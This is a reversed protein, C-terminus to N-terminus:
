CPRVSTTWSPYRTAKPKPTTSSTLSGCVWSSVPAPDAGRSRGSVGRAGTGAEPLAPDPQNGEADRENKRRTVPALIQIGHEGKRVQRGLSQWTRYGAVQTADPRQMWIAVTNRFSYHHFRAATRLWDTWASSSTLTLVQDSLTAHFAELRDRRETDSVAGRRSSHSASRHAPAASM